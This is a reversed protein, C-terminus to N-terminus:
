PAKKIELVYKKQKRQRPKRLVITLIGNELTAKAEEMVVSCPLFISRHFTGYERELRLFKIRKNQLNEKKFGKVEIRNPHLLLTIDKQSIGPLEVAVVVEGDRESIDIYPIWTESMELLERKTSFVEGVIKNIETEIKVIRSVPKIRKVM